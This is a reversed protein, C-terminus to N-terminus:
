KTCKVFNIFNTYWEFFGQFDKAIVYVGGAREIAAQYQKQYDSQRDKGIKVEIKVSRGFITASIDASGNTGTGKIYKGSGAKRTQGMVNTYTFSDDVWRGTNKIREGQWGESQLFAVIAKELGNATKDSHKVPILAYEPFNPNEKRKIDTLHQNLEKITM